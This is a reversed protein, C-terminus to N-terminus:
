QLRKVMFPQFEITHFKGDKAATNWGFWVKLYYNGYLPRDSRYSFYYRGQESRMETKETFYPANETRYRQTVVSGADAFGLLHGDFGQAPNRCIWCTRQWWLKLGSAPPYKDPHQHQGGDLTDDMTSFWQFVGPLTSIGALVSWFALFPSLVYSLLVFFLHAPLFLAYRIM